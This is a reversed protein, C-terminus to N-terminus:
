NGGSRNGGIERGKDRFYELWAKTIAAAMDGEIDALEEITRGWYFSFYGAVWDRSGEIFEDMESIGCRLPFMEEVVLPKGIKYVALAELAREVEGSEPYFHVSAFDLNESVEPSYFLPTAQPWVHAWPIVGVTILTHPDQKRIAEVLTNVWARAVEIRSRGALDLTIRQVFHKGGLSEGPLWDRMESNTGALVPENMLDYCFIAPSGACVGAVAEWFHAQARWREVEDMADYWEPVDDKHYCGLGTINLYLGTREALDVLRALQRLSTENPENPTNMFAGFQLHIRVANVGLSRMQELHREVADWEELWYEELLQGGLAHDYNVGWILIRQGSDALVFHTGDESPIIRSM